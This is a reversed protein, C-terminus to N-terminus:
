LRGVRLVGDLEQARGDGVGLEGDARVGAAQDGPRPGAIVLDDLPRDLRHRLLLRRLGSRPHHDVRQLGDIRGPAHLDESLGHGVGLEGDAGVGALEDGPGPGGVVLDDGVRHFLHGLFLRGFGPGAHDEVIDLGGAGVVRHPQELGGHRFRLQGHAVIGSFQDGPCAGFVVLHDLGGDLLELGIAPKLSFADDGDIGNLGAVGLGKHLDQLGLEFVVRLEDDVGLSVAEDDPGVGFVVLGDVLRDLLEDLAQFAGLLRGGLDVAELQGIGRRGEAHELRQHGRGPERQILVGLADHGARQRLIMLLDLRRDVLHFAFVHFTLLGHETNVPDFAAVHTVDVTRKIRQEPPIGRDLEVDILGVVGDDGDGRRQLVVLDVLEDLFHCLSDQEVRGVHKLEVRHFVDIRGRCHLDEIGQEFLAAGLDVQREIRPAVLQHGDGPGIVVLQDAFGELLEAAFLGFQFDVVQLVDVGDRCLHRDGGLELFLAEVARRLDIDVRDGLLDEDPRIRLLVLLDALQQDLHALGLQLQEAVAAGARHPDDPEAAVEFARDGLDLPDPGLQALVLDADDRRGGGQRGGPFGLGFGLGRFRGGGLGFGLRCGLGCFGHRHFGRWLFGRWGFGLRFWLGRFFGRGLRLGLRGGLRFLGHGCFGFRGLRSRLFSGRGLGLWFWLGRFM